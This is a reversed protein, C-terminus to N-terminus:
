SKPPTCEDVWEYKSVLDLIEKKFSLFHERLNATKQTEHKLYGHAQNAKATLQEIKEDRKAVEEKLREIEANATGLQDVLSEEM